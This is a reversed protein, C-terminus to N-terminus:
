LDAPQRPPPVLNDHPEPLATSDGQEAVPAPMGALARLLAPNSHTIRHHERTIAGQHELTRLARSVVERATGVRAAMEQQTVAVRGGTSAGEELLLRAVRAISPRFSLDEVLITLHRLRGALVRIVEQAVQSNTALLAFVQETRLEWVSTDATLATVTAPCPGGDFVPADNFTEGPGAILLVQEKGALSTKAIRVHGTRVVYLGPAPAGELLLIEGAALRRLLCAHHFQALAVPDLSRFYPVAHLVHLDADTPM